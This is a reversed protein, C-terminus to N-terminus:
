QPLEKYYICKSHHLDGKMIKFAPYRKRRFGNYRYADKIWTTLNNRGDLEVVARDGCPESLKGTNDYDLYQIYAKM